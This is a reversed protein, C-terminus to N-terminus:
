FNNAVVELAEALTRDIAEHNLHGHQMYQSQEMRKDVQVKNKAVSFALSTAEVKKVKFVFELGLAQGDFCTRLTLEDVLNFKRASSPKLKTEVWGKSSKQGRPVFQFVSELTHVFVGIVPHPEVTIPAVATQRSQAGYRLLPTKSKDSIPFNSDLSFSFEQQEIGGAPVVWVPPLTVSQFVEFAGDRGKKPDGYALEVLPNEISQAQGGHNKVLFRGLFDQGQIVSDKASEVRYELQDHIFVGKM